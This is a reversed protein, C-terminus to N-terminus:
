RRPPRVPAAPRRLDRRPQHAAARPLDGRERRRAPRVPAPLPRHRRGAVRDHRSLAAAGYSIFDSVQSQSLRSTSSSRTSSASSRARARRAAARRGRAHRARGAPRTKSADILPDLNRFFRELDPALRACTPSRRSSTARWRGCTRSRAPRTDRRSRRCGRSRRRPSTSSRRSSGSRRPSRTTARPPRTSSAEQVLHDADAAAARERDARAFSSAPTRSWGSSRARRRTSCAAARGLRRRRLGAAHRARRQLRARPGQHGEGLEQQWTRFSARTPRTSRTSSRTSSSRTRSRRTPWGAARPSSRPRTAPRSSARLDRRAADEPAADGARRRAAARVPPRARDDRAHPQAQPDVDLKRVKGVSVGAIRVDAETALTAAEPFAVQVRYGQPKLPVAGGFSLWLFLLLGFCSLAFVVMTVIRLLSPASKNMLRLGGLRHPDPDADRPVRARAGRPRAARGDRVPAGVTVPRFM